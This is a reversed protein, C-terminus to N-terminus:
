VVTDYLQLFTRNYFEKDICYLIKQQTIATENYINERTVIMYKKKKNARTFAKQISKDSCQTQININEIGFLDYLYAYKHTFVNSSLLSNDIVIDLKAAFAHRISHIYEERLSCFVKTNEFHVIDVSDVVFPVTLADPHKALIMEQLMFDLRPNNVEYTVNSRSPPEDRNGLIYETPKSIDFLSYVSNMLGISNQLCMTYITNKMFCEYNRNHIFEEFNSVPDGYQFSSLYSYDIHNMLLNMIYIYNYVTTILHYQQKSKSFVITFPLSTKFTYTNHKIKYMVDSCSTADTDIFDKLFTENVRFNLISVFVYKVINLSANYTNANTSMTSITPTTAYINIMNPM